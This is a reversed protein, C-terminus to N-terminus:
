FIFNDVGTAKHTACEPTNTYALLRHEPTVTQNQKAGPESNLSHDLTRNAEWLLHFRGMSDNQQQNQLLTLLYLKYRSVYYCVFTIATYLLVFCGAHVNARVIQHQKVPLTQYCPM